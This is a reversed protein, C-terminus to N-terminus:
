GKKMHKSTQLRRPFPDASAPPGLVYEWCAFYSQVLHILTFFTKSLLVTLFDDWSPLLPM